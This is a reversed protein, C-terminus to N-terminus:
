GLFAGGLDVLLIGFGVKYDAIIFLTGALFAGGEVELLVGLVKSPIRLSLGHKLKQWIGGEHVM